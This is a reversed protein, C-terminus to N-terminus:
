VAARVAALTAPITEPMQLAGLAADVDKLGTGTVLVVVTARPAIAGRRVARALGALTAAAAPEAFVGALKGLDGQAWLIREDAVKIGVGDTERLARLAWTGNAPAAVRLSDAITTARQLPRVEAAGQEWATVIAASGEAQVAVLRPLRDILGADRLDSFGKHVGALIAGDGVPVVVADPVQGALQDWIELAVTKKGEITYPNYATSRNYWGLERAAAISLAFAEDYTGEIRLVRAGYVLMQALKARPADAPTLIVCELGAAACMAALATGANGTSATCVISHGRERAKAVVLGSARDKLSGSPLHTDDKLFLNPMGLAQRLRPAALLPTPGLPLPPLLAPDDLPLLDVLPVRNAWEGGSGRAAAPAIERIFDYEVRLVGRLCEGPEQAGGCVPCTYDVDAPGFARACETCVLRYKGM